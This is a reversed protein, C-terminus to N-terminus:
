ERYFWYGPWDYHSHLQQEYSHDVMAVSDWPPSAKVQARTINLEIHRDSWDIERVAYPSILVHQGPWWNKTDVALYRIDWNAHDAVFNEIHGIEGDTAHIRYDTIESISRLHPDEDGPASAPAEEILPPPSLPSAMAGLGFFSSGWAPDWGYYDYLHTEMQRSVPEHESIDPSGEIEAKTLKVALERQAPDPEGIASAHILIKRGTLWGGTDVVLWRIKWSDDDFLFDNVTGISGDSAAIAYGKLTSVVFLM